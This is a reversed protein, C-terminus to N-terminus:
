HIKGLLGNVQRQITNYVRKELDEWPLKKAKRVDLASTLEIYSDVSMQYMDSLKKGCQVACADILIRRESNRMIEKFKGPVIVAPLCGIKV